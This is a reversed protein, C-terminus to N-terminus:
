ARTFIFFPTKKGTTVEYEELTGSITVKATESKVSSVDLKSALNVKPCVLTKNDFVIEIAVYLDPKATPAILYGGTVEEYGLLTTMIDSQLDACTMEIHYAGQTVVSKIPADSTECEINNEEPDDQSITLSDAVISELPIGTASPTLTWAGTQSSYSWATVNIEKAGSLITKGDLLSAHTGSLFKTLEAM